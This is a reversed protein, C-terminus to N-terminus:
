GVRGSSRPRAAAFLAHLDVMAAAGDLDLQSEVHSLHAAMRTRAAVADRRALAELVETHQERSCPPDARHQYLALILSSRSVLEGLFAALVHNGALGALSRHFDGSLRILAHRDGSREAELERALHARLQAFAADPAREIAADILAAEVVRRAEFVARAEEVSPRAVVAGRNTRLEVLKEHGLRLLAKRVVTRSVGFASALTDEPLSTGPPIRQDVIATSLERHLRDDAAGRRRSRLPLPAAAVDSHPM